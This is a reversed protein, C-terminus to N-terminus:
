HYEPSVAHTARSAFYLQPHPWKGGSSRPNFPGALFDCFMGDLCNSVAHTFVCARDRLYPEIAV